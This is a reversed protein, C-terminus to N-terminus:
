RENKSEETKEAKIKANQEAIYQYRTITMGGVILALNVWAGIAGADPLEYYSAVRNAAEGLAQSEEQSPAIEPYGALAAIIAGTTRIATAIDASKDVAKKESKTTSRGRKKIERPVNNVPQELPKEVLESFGEFDPTPNDM